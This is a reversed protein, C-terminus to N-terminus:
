LELEEMTLRLMYDAVARRQDPSVNPEFIGATKRRRERWAMWKRRSQVAKVLATRMENRGRAEANLIELALFQARSEVGERRYLVTLHAEVTKTSVNLEKAIDENSAGQLVLTRVLTATRM